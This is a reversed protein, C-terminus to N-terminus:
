GGLGGLLSGLDSDGLSRQIQEEPTAGFRQKYQKLADDMAAAVLDELMSVDESVAASAAEAIRVGRITLDGQLDVEVAGGGARGTLVAQMREADAKNMADKIPGIQGMLSSLDM